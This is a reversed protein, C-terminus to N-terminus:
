IEVRETKATGFAGDADPNLRGFEFTLVSAFCVWALYPLLLM